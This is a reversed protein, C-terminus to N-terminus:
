GAFAPKPIRSIKFIVRLYDVEVASLARDFRYEMRQAITNLPPQSGRWATKKLYRFYEKKRPAGSRFMWPKL